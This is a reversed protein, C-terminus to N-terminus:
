FKLINMFFVDYIHWLDINLIKISVYIYIYVHFSLQLINNLTFFWTVPCASIPVCLHIGFFNVIFWPNHSRRFLLNYFAFPYSYSM